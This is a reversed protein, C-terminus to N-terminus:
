ESVVKIWVGREVLASLLRPLMRLKLGSYVSPVVAEILHPGKAPDIKPIEPLFSLTM